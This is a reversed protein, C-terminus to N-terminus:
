VLNVAFLEPEENDAFPGFLISGPQGDVKVFYSDEGGLRNQCAWATYERGKLELKIGKYPYELTSREPLIGRSGVAQYLIEGESVAFLAGPWTEGSPGVEFWQGIRPNGYVDCYYSRRGQAKKVHASAVIKPGLGPDSLAMLSSNQLPTPLDGSSGPPRTTIILIPFGTGRKAQVTLALLSLGFLISSTQLTEQSALIIWMATEKKLLEERPGMWAMKDPDDTWVHGHGEIGYHKLVSILTKIDTETQALSSIWARKAM